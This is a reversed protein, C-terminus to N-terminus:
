LTKGMWDDLTWQPFANAWRVALRIFPWWAARSSRESDMVEFDDDFSGRHDRLVAQAKARLVLEDLSRPEDTM